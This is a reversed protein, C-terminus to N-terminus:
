AALKPIAREVLRLFRTNRTGAVVSEQSLLKATVGAKILIDPNKKGAVFRLIAALDGRLIIALEGSDPVLLVQDVLTRFIEAAKATEDESRLSEYM